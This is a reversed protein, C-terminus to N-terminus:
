FLRKEDEIGIGTGRGGRRGNKGVEEWRVGM